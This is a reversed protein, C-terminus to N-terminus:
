GDYGTHYPVLLFARVMEEDTIQTTTSTFGPADPDVWLGKSNYTVTGTGNPAIQISDIVSSSQPLAQIFEAIAQRLLIDM